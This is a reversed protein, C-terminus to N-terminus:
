INSVYTADAAIELDKMTLLRECEKMVEEPSECQQCHDIFDRLREEEMAMAKAFTSSGQSVAIDLTKPELNIYKTFFKGCNANRLLRPPLKNFWTEQHGDRNRGIFVFLVRRILLSLTEAKIVRDTKFNFVTLLFEYTLGQRYSIILFIQNRSSVQYLCTFSERSRPSLGQCLLEFVTGPSM